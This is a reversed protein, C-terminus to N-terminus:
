ASQAHPLEKWVGAPVRAAAEEMLKRNRELVDGRFRGSLAKALAAMPLLETLALFAALLAVNPVPRGIARSAMATAPLAVMAMGSAKSIEESAANSNILIGGGPLLGQTLGPEGLLTEDQIILFHPQRVQSRRLIPRDAIRVFAVMPAGRREAGFSPFAQCYRGDEFAATALLYAAVM